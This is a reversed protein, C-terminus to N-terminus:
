SSCLEQWPLVSSCRVCWFVDFMDPRATSTHITQVEGACTLTAPRLQRICCPMCVGARWGWCLPTLSRRQVGAPHCAPMAYVLCGAIQKASWVYLGLDHLYKRTTQPVLEMSPALHQLRVDNNLHTLPLTKKKHTLKSSASPEWMLPMGMLCSTVSTSPAAAAQWLWSQSMTWPLM